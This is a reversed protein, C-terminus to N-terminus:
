LITLPIDLVHLLLDLAYLIDRWQQPNLKIAHVTAEVPLGRVLPANDAPNTNVGNNAM